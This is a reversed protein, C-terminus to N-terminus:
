KLANSEKEDLCLTNAFYIKPPFSIFFFVHNIKDIIISAIKTHKIETDLLPKSKTLSIM